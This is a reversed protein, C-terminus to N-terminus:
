IALLALVGGVGRFVSSIHTDKFSKLAIKLTKLRHKKLALNALESEGETSFEVLKKLEEMVHM